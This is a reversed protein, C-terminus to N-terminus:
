QVIKIKRSQLGIDGSLSAGQLLITYTGPNDAAYFSVEAEGKENTVVTPEWYITSRNDPKANHRSEYAYKPVYSSKGYHFVPTAIQDFGANRSDAVLGVGSGSQTTIELYYYETFYKSNPSRTDGEDSLGRRDRGGSPLITPDDFLNRIARNYPMTGRPSTILEMGKIERPKLRRFDINARWFPDDVFQGDIVIYLRNRGAKLSGFFNQSQVNQLDYAQNFEKNILSTPGVYGKIHKEFFEFIDMDGDANKIEGETVVQEANGSGNLNKSGKIVKSKVVVEEMMEPDSSIFRANKSRAATLISADVNLQPHYFQRFVVGDLSPYVPQDVHINVKFRKAPIKDGYKYDITDAKASIFFQATDFQPINKFMFFGDKDAMTKLRFQSHRYTYLSVGYHAMGKEKNFIDLVRGSVTYEPEPKLLFKSSDWNYRVFGQTLMLADLAKDATDSINAFYYNPTEINGSLDSQMLLYTFINEDATVDKKVQGDDTVALSFSGLVPRGEVDKVSVKLSVSDRTSYNMASPKLEIQLAEKNDVFFQRQSVLAGKRDYLFATAVGSPFAVQPMAITANGQNLLIASQHIPYGRSSLVLQYRAATDANEEIAIVVKGDAQSKNVKLLVGNAEVPPLPVERGDELVAKYFNGSVPRFSFYGMGKYLPQISTITQGGGDVVKANFHTGLGNQDIAKFGIKNVLGAVIHGGEPMFQLDIAPKKFNVPIDLYVKRRNAPDTIRVRCQKKRHESSLIFKIDAVGNADLALKSVLIPKRQEGFLEFGVQQTAKPVGEENIFKMRTEVSDGNLVMPLMSLFWKSYIDADNVVLDKEYFLSDGFNQMWRTYARIKYLGPEFYSTDLPIQGFGTGLVVHYNFRRVFDKHQNILEVCYVGSRASPKQSLADVIYSKFWITDGTVYGNKDFHM